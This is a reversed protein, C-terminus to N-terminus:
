QLIPTYNVPYTQEQTHHTTVPRVTPVTVLHTLAGPYPTGPSLDELILIAPTHEKHTVTGGILLLTTTEQPPASQIKCCLPDRPDAILTCEPPPAQFTPCRQNCRYVGTVCDECIWSFDCGDFWQQGQLYQQGKYECTGILGFSRLNDSEEKRM